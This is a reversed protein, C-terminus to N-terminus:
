QPYAFLIPKVDNKLPMCAFGQEALKDILPSLIEVASANSRLVLVARDMSALREFATDLVTQTAYSGNMDALDINWDYPVFGRRIMEAILPQYYEANYSNVSGGPFRFVSPTIGTTQKIYTFQQEFDALFAPISSYLSQLDGSCSGMGITHGAAAIDNLLKADVTDASGSLFFTAKVGKEELIALIESTHSSFAGDFTLYVNGSQRRTAHYPQPAYFDPYLSQYETPDSDVAPYVQDVSPSEESARLLTLQHHYYLAFASATGVALIVFVLIINKFFKVSGFYM